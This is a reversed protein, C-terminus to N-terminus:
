GIFSQLFIGGLFAAVVYLVFLRIALTIFPLKSKNVIRVTPMMM